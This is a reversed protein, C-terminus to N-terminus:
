LNKVSKEITKWHNKWSRELINRHSEWVHEPSDSKSRKGPVNKPIMQTALPSAGLRPPSALGLGSELVPKYLYSRAHWVYVYLSMSVASGTWQESLNKQKIPTRVSLKDPRDKRNTHATRGAQKPQKKVSNECSKTFLHKESCHSACKQFAPWLMKCWVFWRKSGGAALFHTVKNM